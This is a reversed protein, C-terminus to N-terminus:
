DESPEEPVYHLWDGSAGHLYLGDRKFEYSTVSRLMSLYRREANMAEDPCAMQTSAIEGMVLSNKEEGPEVSGTYENCGSNGALSGAAFRLNIDAGPAQNIDTSGFWKLTWGYDPLQVEGVNLDVTTAMTAAHGAVVQVDAVVSSAGEDEGEGKSESEGDGNGAAAAGAAGAAGAAAAGAVVAGTAGSGDDNEEAEMDHGSHDEMVEQEDSGEAMDGSGSSDACAVLFVCCFLAMLVSKLQTNMM